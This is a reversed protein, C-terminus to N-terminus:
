RGLMFNATCKDSKKKHQEAHKLECDCCPDEEEGPLGMWFALFFAGAYFMGLASVVAVWLKLKLILSGDINELGFM